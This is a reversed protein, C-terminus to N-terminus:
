VGGAKGDDKAAPKKDSDDLHGKPLIGFAKYMAAESTEDVQMYPRQAAASLHGASHMSQELSIGPDKANTTIHLRRFAHGTGNAFGMKECAEKIYQKVKNEGIPM